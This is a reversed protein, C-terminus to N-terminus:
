VTFFVYKYLVYVYVKTENSISSEAFNIPNSPQCSKIVDCVIASQQLLLLKRRDKNGCLPNFHKIISCDEQANLASLNKYPLRSEIEDGKGETFIWIIPPFTLKLRLPLVNNPM